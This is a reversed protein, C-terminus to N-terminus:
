HKSVAMAKSFYEWLQSDIAGRSAIAAGEQQYMNHLSQEIEPNGGTFEGILEQSRQVLAQVASSAPDTGKEMEIRVQAILNEWDVQAQRIKDEGLTQRRQNLEELQESTYYKEWMNMDEITAIFDEICVHQATQLQQAIAELRQYLRTSLEIQQKLRALHLAIANQPSFNPQKLCDRIEELCFGLQRLSLIQQLRVIDAETYLRHGVQTRDSPVLLGIQDYYHLTRVSVGTQKALEGVKMAVREM